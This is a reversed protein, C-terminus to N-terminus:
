RFWRRKQKPAPPNLRVQAEYHFTEHLDGWFDSLWGAPVCRSLELAEEALVAFLRGRSERDSASEMAAALAALHTIEVPAPTQASM